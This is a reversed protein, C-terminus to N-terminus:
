GIVKATHTEHGSRRILLILFLKDFDLASREWRAEASRPSEEHWRHPPAGASAGRPPGSARLVTM